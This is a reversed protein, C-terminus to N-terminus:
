GRMVHLAIIIGIMIETTMISILMLTDVFGNGNKNIHLIGTLLSSCKEM